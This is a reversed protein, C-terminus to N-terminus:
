KGDKTRNLYTFTKAQVAQYDWRGGNPNADYWAKLLGRAEENDKKLAELKSAYYTAGLKFGDCFDYSKGDNWLSESRKKIEKKM